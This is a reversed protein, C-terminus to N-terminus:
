CLLRQQFGPFFDFLLLLLLWWRISSAKTKPPTNKTSQVYICLLLAKVVEREKRLHHGPVWGGQMPLGWHSRQVVFLTQVCKACRTSYAHSMIICARHGNQSGFLLFLHRHDSHWRRRTCVRRLRRAPEQSRSPSLRLAPTEDLSLAQAYTDYTSFHSATVIAPSWLLIPGVTCVYFRGPIYKGIQAFM